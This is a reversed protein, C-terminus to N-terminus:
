GLYSPVIFGTGDTFVYYNYGVGISTNSRVSLTIYGCTTMCRTVEDDGRSSSLDFYLKGSQLTRRRKARLEWQSGNVCLHSDYEFKSYEVM